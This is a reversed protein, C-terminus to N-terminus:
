ILQMIGLAIIIMGPLLGLDKRFRDMLFHSGLYLGLSVLTFKAGALVLPIFWPNFGMMAAGLGAGLADMALAFGLFVAENVSITGSEDFDAKSPEKLIKIVLGLSPINLKFITLEGFSCPDSSDHSTLRQSWGQLLLWAGVLILALGGLFSALGKTLFSAIIQGAVMSAALAVASSISIVLLSKWPIRIKRMGYSLGVGFGDLSLAIAFVISSWFLSM